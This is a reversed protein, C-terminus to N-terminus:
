CVTTSRIRFLTDAKIVSTPYRLIFASADVELYEWDEVSLRENSMESTVISVVKARAARATMGPM